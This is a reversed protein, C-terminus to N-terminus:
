SKRRAKGRATSGAAKSSAQSSEVSPSSRVWELPPFKGVAFPIENKRLWDSYRQHKKSSLWNDRQLLIRYDVEPYQGQMALAVKRARADFKGKSEMVVDTEPFFWDPTYSTYRAIRKSYCDKCYEGPVDVRLKYTRGEYEFPIRLAELQERIKREYQSRFLTRLAM